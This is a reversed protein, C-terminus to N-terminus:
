FTNEGHKRLGFGCFHSKKYIKLIHWYTWNAWLKGGSAAKAPAGRPAAIM